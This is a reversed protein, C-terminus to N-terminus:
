RSVRVKAREDFSVFVAHEVCILSFYLSLIVYFININAFIVSSDINGLVLFDNCYCIIRYNLIYDDESIVTENVSWIGTLSIQINAWAGGLRPM